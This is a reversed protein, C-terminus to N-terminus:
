CRAGCTAGRPGAQLRQMEGRTPRRRTACTASRSRGATTTTCTPCRTPRSCRGSATRWRRAAHVPGSDLQRHEHRAHPPPRRRHEQAARPVGRHRPALDRPLRVGRGQAQRGPQRRRRHRQRGEPVAGRGPEATPARSTRASPACRRGTTASAAPSVERAARQGQDGQLHRRPRGVRHDPLLVVAALAAHRCNFLTPTSSMFDFRRCCTTSSSRARKATSRACRWAWRWACSSRRRCSSARAARHAPLLPRVADAPRPLQVAPRARAGAGASSRAPRVAGLEPDLLEADIGTAVYAPFYEAYRQLWRPEPTAQEPRWARLVPGRARLKDLLLRASVYAYNPEKEILTRAAMIPALALEDQRFATTSIAARRQSSRGTRRCRELGACAERRHACAAGRRAACRATPPKVNFLPHAATAAAAAAGRGGRPRANKAISCM